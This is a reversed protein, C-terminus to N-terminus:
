ASGQEPVGLGGAIELMTGEFEGTLLPMAETIAQKVSPLQLSDDHALRSVWVEFVFVADPEKDSISVAYIGCGAAKLKDVDRLLLAVVKDRMGPRAVLKGNLGYRM